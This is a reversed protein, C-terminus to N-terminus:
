EKSYDFDVFCLGVMQLLYTRDVLTWLGFAYTGLKFTIVIVLYDFSKYISTVFGDKLFIFCLHFFLKM